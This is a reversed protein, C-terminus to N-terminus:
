MKQLTMAPHRTKIGSDKEKANYLESDDVDLPITCYPVHGKLLEEIPPDPGKTDSGDFYDEDDVLDKFEDMQVGYKGEVHRGGVARELVTGVTGEATPHHNFGGLRHM